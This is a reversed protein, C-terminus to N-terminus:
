AGSRTVWTEIPFARAQGGFGERELGRCVAKAEAESLHTDTSIGDGHEGRYVNLPWRAHSIWKEATRPEGALAAVFENLSEGKGATLHVSTGFKGRSIRLTTM